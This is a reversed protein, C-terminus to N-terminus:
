ENSNGKRLENAMGQPTYNISEKVKKKIEQNKVMESVTKAGLMKPVPFKGLLDLGRIIASSSNSYNAAGDVTTNVNMTTELLDRVEQAGKKGFIYDLKGDQDLERVIAKFKAPSVIPNGKIDNKSNKTVEDKIYQITQGQLEKWAKQGDPGAKKLVLGINQVDQKSGKLISHAFVDELAVSRDTTGPKKSLLKDVYGANEFTRAYDARLKRANKYLDGGVNETTSDILKNIEKGYLQNTPTNGSLRGVMKRVEELDNISVKGEKALSNLKVEASTIIPANIAEAELGKLYNQIGTVDILESTEGAERAADYANKIDKKAKQASKVLAEDVVRGTAELGYKEKGTADVYADFNQLIADNKAAKAELLPKGVTEPFNKATEAEFAQTAFDKTAEGKSLPIPVRLQQATQYRTIAEPVEAAGVGPMVPSEKRLAQAINTAKEVVPEVTQTVKTAMPQVAGKIMQGEERLAQAMRNAVPMVSEQVIPRVNSAVRAASPIAGINGLYPPLAELPKLTEAVAGLAEQSVPSTPRYQMAQSAEQAYKAGLEAPAKGTSIAEPISRAIGYAQALPQTIMPAVIATPVEYLAKVRDMMTTPKAVPQPNIANPREGVVTPVDTNIVNGRNQPTPTFKPKPLKNLAEAMQEKSMGDPLEVDGIGVVEIIPM